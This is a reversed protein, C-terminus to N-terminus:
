EAPEEPRSKIEQLQNTLEDLGSRLVTEREALSQMEERLRELREQLTGIQLVISETETLEIKEADM